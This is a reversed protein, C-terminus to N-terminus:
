RLYNILSLNALRATTAYITELQTELAKFEAASEYADAARLETRAIDILSREAEVRTAAAEIREQKVGLDARVDTVQDRASIAGLAARNLMLNSSVPAAGYSSEVGMVATALSQLVARVADSDAREAFALREGPGLEATPADVAAGLFASTAFGGAPDNFYTDIAALADATNTTAAVVVAVENLITDADRLAPGDVAAGAFLNRGTSDGNIAAVAAQMASRASAAVTRAASYDGRETAALLDVGVADAARRLTDLTAQTVEARTEALTIVNKREELRSLSAELAQLRRLDGGAAEVLDSKLGTNVEQSVRNLAAKTTGHERTLRLHSMLDPVITSRM